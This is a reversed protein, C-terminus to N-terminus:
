NVKPIKVAAVIVVGNYAYTYSNTNEAGTHVNFAVFGTSVTTVNTSAVLHSIQQGTTDSDSSVVLFREGPHVRINIALAAGHFMFSDRPLQRQLQGADDLLLLHPAFLGRGLPESSVSVIYEEAADPLRFLLYTSKEGAAELCSSTQDLTVKVSGGSLVLPRPNALDLRATCSRGELSTTPPPAAACGALVILLLAGSLGALSRAPITM